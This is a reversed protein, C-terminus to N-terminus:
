LLPPLSGILALISSVVEEPHLLTTDVCFDARQGYLALRQETDVPFYGARQERTDQACMLYILTGLGQVLLQTHENQLSGGGLAIVSHTTGKLCAIQEAEATRFCAEGRQQYLARCSLGCANEILADTDIFNIHLEAALLKGVTSKGSGKLGCLILNLRRESNNYIKLM